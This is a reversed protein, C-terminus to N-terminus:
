PFIDLTVNLFAGRLNKAQIALYIMGPHLVEVHKLLHLFDGISIFM